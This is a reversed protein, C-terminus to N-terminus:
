SINSEIFYTDTNLEHIDVTISCRLQARSRAFEAKLFSLIRKGLAQRLSLDRGKLISLTLHIFGNSKNGDAVLYERHRIIRSKIASMQFPGHQILLEHLRKFLDDADPREIINDSYELIFHPMKEERVGKM